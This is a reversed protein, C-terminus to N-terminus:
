APNGSVRKESWKRILASLGKLLFPKALFDDMGAELYKERDGPLANATVAIIVPREEPAFRRIIQRTAELGDMEPMQIDMLILDFSAQELAELVELGNTAISPRYGLKSLLSVFVRQNVLHDEAILIRFPLPAPAPTSNEPSGPDAFDQDAFPQRRLPLSITFVSGEDPASRVTIEGNMLEALKRSISLGLGTGGRSKAAPNKGQVFPMFVAEIQDPNMGIGTDSIKIQIDHKEKDIEHGNVSIWVKGKDTFKLANGILNLVVQRIRQQDGILQDPTGPDYYLRIDLGKERAIPSTLQIIEELMNNLNFPNESLQVKGAEVKSLDLIDNIIALLNEGSTHIASVYEDQEKNLPTMKLLQTMGIVGNMPTRIEHSMAALFESKAKNASEAQRAILRYERAFRRSLELTHLILFAWYAVLLFIDHAVWLTLVDGVAYAMLALLVLLGSAVYKYNNRKENQLVMLLMYLGYVLSLGLVGIFIMIAHTFLYAPLLLITSAIALIINQAVKRAIGHVIGEFMIGIFAWYFYVSLYLSLYELKLTIWWPLDPLVHHIPYNESGVIYYTHILCFLAFYLVEKRRRGFLFLGMLFFGCMVFSGAAAYELIHSNERISFMLNNEGILISEAPGGKNHHFNAIQLVLELDPGDLDLSKTMPLWKPATSKRDIGVTGNQAFLKGNVWLSYSTYFDPISLALLPPPEEFHVRMRYTAYGFAPTGLGEPKLANWLRPFPAFTSNGWDKGKFGSPPILTDWYFEWEGALNFPTTLVQDPKLKIRGQRVAEGPWLAEPRAQSFAPLSIFVLIGSIILRNLM